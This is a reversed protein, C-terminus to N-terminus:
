RCSKIYELSKRWASEFSSRFLKVPGFDDYEAPEISHIFYAKRYDELKEVLEDEVSFPTPQLFRCVVPQDLEILKDATGKWNITIAANAGVMETFHHLGRAGGGIFECPYCREAVLAHVKKAISIGAQWLVDRDIDIREKEM